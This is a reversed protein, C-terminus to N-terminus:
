QVKAHQRVLGVMKEMEFPKQLYAVVNGFQKMEKEDFDSFGAMVVTPVEIGDTQMLLLLEVGNVVPMNIDLLMAQCNASQLKEYAKQGDSCSEVDFGSRELWKRVVELILVDDDVILIM